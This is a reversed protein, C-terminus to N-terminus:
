WRLTVNIGVQSSKRWTESCRQVYSELFLFLLVIQFDFLCNFLEQMMLKGIVSRRMGDSSLLTIQIQQQIMKVKVVINLLDCGSIDITEEKTIRYLLLGISLRFHGRGDIAGPSRDFAEKPPQDVSTLDNMIWCDANLDLMLVSLRRYEQCLVLLSTEQFCDTRMFAPLCVTIQDDGIEEQMSADPQGLQYIQIDGVYVQKFLLDGDFSLASQNDGSKDICLQSSDQMAIQFCTFLDKGIALCEEEALQLVSNCRSLNLTAEVLPNYFSSNGFSDCRVTQPVTECGTKIGSSRVDENDLLSESMCGYVCSLNVSVQEVLGKFIGEFSQLLPNSSEPLSQHAYRPDVIGLFGSVRELPTRSTCQLISLVVIM